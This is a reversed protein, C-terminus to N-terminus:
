TEWLARVDSPGGAGKDEKVTDTTSSCAAGSSMAWVLAPEISQDPGKGSGQQEDNTDCGTLKRL